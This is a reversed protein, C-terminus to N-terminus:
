VTCKEYKSLQSVLALFTWGEFVFKYTTAPKQTCGHIQRKYVDLHTYSVAMACVDKIVKLVLDEDM